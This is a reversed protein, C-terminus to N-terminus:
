AARGASGTLISVLAIFTAAVVWCVALKSFDDPLHVLAAIAASFLTLTMFTFFKEDGYESYSTVAVIRHLALLGFIIVVFVLVWHVVPLVRVVEWLLLLAAVAAAPAAILTDGGPALL